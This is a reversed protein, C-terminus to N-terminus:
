LEKRKVVMCFAPHTYGVRVRKSAKKGARADREEQKVSEEAASVILEEGVSRM